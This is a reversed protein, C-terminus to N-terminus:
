TLGPICHLLPYASAAIAAVDGMGASVMWAACTLGPSRQTPDHNRPTHDPLAIGSSCPLRGPAVGVTPSLGSDKM